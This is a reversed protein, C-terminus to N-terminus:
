ISDIADSADEFSTSASEVDSSHKENSQRVLDVFTQISSKFIEAQNDLKQKSADMCASFSEWMNSLSSDESKTVEIISDGDADGEGIIKVIDSIYNYLNTLQTTIDEAWTQVQEDTLNSLDM